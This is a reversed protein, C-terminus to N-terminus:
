QAHSHGCGCFATYPEFTYPASKFAFSFSKLGPTGSETELYCRCNFLCPTENNGPHTPLQNPKYPGSAALDPCISCSGGEDGGLRWYILDGDPLSNSWTENATGRLRETYNAARAEIRATNLEGEDSTYRGNKIDKLFSELHQAEREGIIQGLAQDFEGLPDRLGALARGAYAANAHAEILAGSGRALATEYALMEAGYDRTIAALKGRLQNQVMPVLHRYIDSM